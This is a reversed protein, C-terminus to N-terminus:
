MIIETDASVFDLHTSNTNFDIIATDNGSDGSASDFVGDKVKIM